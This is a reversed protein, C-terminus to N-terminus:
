RVYGQARARQADSPETLRVQWYPSYLSAFEQRPPASSPRRFYVEATGLAWFRNGAYNEPMRLRGVGVNLVNATRTDHGEARALVAVASRPFRPNALAAYDLDRVEAIGSFGTSRSSAHELMEAEALGAAMANHRVDGPNALFGGASAPVGQEDLGPAEVGGWGLPLAEYRRCGRFAGFLGSRPRWGHLSLTDGAEWREFEPTMVTGGRKHLEHFWADPGAIPNGFCLSPLLWLTLNLGRPGRVFADLSADVLAGLRERDAGEYRRTPVGTDDDPLAFAFFRRDNARAVENAVAGLAFTDASRQLVDQSLALLRKYADRAAIEETATQAALLSATRALDASVSLVASVPPYAASIAAATGTFTEFYRAWSALTVAQAIAVEQAIVARNAYAQYNLVRARWLAASWAAADAANNLRHRTSSVQATGFLFYLGLVAAVLVLLCLVLAQGADHRAQPTRIANM